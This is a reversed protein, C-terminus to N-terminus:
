SRGGSMAAHVVLENAWRSALHANLFVLVQSLADTLSLAEQAAADGSSGNAQPQNASLAWSIPHLDLIVLLLSPLDTTDM